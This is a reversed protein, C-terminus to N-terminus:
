ARLVINQAYQGYIKLTYCLLISISKQILLPDPDLNTSQM